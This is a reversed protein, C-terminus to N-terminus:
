VADRNGTGGIPIRILHGEAPPMTSVYAIKLKDPSKTVEDLFKGSFHPAHYSDGLAPGSTVDLLAASDRVTRTLTISHQWDGGLRSVTPALLASKGSNTKFWILRLLVGPIRISGGGDSASAMPALEPLSPQPVVERPVEPPEISGM